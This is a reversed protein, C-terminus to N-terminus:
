AVRFKTAPPRTRPRPARARFRRAPQRAARYAAQLREAVIPIGQIRIM